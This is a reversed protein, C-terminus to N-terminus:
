RTLHVRHRVHALAVLARADAVDDVVLASLYNCERGGWGGGGVGGLIRWFRPAREGQRGPARPGRRRAAHSCSRAFMITRVHDHSCSRAAAISM